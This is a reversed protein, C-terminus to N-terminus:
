RLVVGQPQGPMGGVACQDPGGLHGGTGGGGGGHEVHRGGCPRQQLGCAVEAAGGGAVARGPPQEGRCREAVLLDRACGGVALDQQGGPPAQLSHPLGPDSAGSNIGESGPEIGAEVIILAEVGPGPARRLRHLPLDEPHPRGPHRLCRDEGASGARSSPRPHSAQGPRTALRIPPAAPCRPSRATRPPM